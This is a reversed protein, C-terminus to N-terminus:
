GFCNVSNPILLAKLIGKCYNRVGLVIDFSLLSGNMVVYLGFLAFRTHKFGFLTSPKSIRFTVFLLRCAGFRLFIRVM